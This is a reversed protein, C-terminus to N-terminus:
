KSVFSQVIGTWLSFMNWYASVVCTSFVTHFLINAALHCLGLMYLCPCLMRLLSIIFLANTNPAKTFENLPFHFTIDDNYQIMFSALYWPSWGCSSWTLSGVLQLVDLVSDSWLYSNSCWPLLRHRRRQLFGMLSNSLYWTWSFPCSPCVFMIGRARATM